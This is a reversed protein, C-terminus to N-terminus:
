VTHTSVLLFAFREQCSKQVFFGTFTVFNNSVSRTISPSRRRATPFTPSAAALRRSIDGRRPSMARRGGGGGVAATPFAWPQGTVVPLPGAVAGGLPGTASRKVTGGSLTVAGGGGGGSMSAAASM